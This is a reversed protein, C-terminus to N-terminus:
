GEHLEYVTLSLPLLAVNAYLIDRTYILGVCQRESMTWTLPTINELHSFTKSKRDPISGSM